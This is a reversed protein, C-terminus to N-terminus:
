AKAPIILKVQAGTKEDEEINQVIIKAGLSEEALTKIIKWGLSDSDRHDFGEEFGQGDDEVILILNDEEDVRLNINIRTLNEGGHELSNSILENVILAFNTANGSSIFVKEPCSFEVSLDPVGFSAVSERIIGNILHGFDVSEIDDAKALFEHVMSMSSVRNIAEMFADELIPNRRQQMRLLSVVMQLNNKVRHHIEKLLTEKIKIESIDKILAVSMKGSLSVYRLRVTRRNLRIEEIAEISFSPDQGQFKRDYSRFLDELNMGSLQGGHEVLESLLSVALPNAFFITHIGEIFVAGEGFAILPFRKGSVIKEKLAAILNDAMYDWHQGLINRTLYIDREVTVVAIVKEFSIPYAFEQIRRNNIVLGYQGVIPKGLKFAKQVSINKYSELKQGKKLQASIKPNVYLSDQKCQYINHLYIEDSDEGKRVYLSVDAQLLEAMFPLNSHLSDIIEKM